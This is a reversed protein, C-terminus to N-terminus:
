PEVDRLLLAAILAESAPIPVLGGRLFQEASVLPAASPFVSFAAPAPEDANLSGVAFLFERGQHGHLMSLPGPVEVVCRGDDDCRCGREVGWLHVRRGTGFRAHASLAAEGRLWRVVDVTAYEYSDDAAPERALRGTDAVRGLFVQSMADWARPLESWPSPPSLAPDERVSWRGGAGCGCGALAHAGVM